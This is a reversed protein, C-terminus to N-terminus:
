KGWFEDEGAQDHPKEDIRQIKGDAITFSLTSDGEFKKDGMAATAHHVADATDGNVTVSKLEVSMNGGTLEFLKGYFGLIEDRGKYDGTIQNNGPVSHVADDAFLGGLTEMDGSSFAAYGDRVIQENDAM